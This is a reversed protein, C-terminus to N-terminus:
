HTGPLSKRANRSIRRFSLDWGRVKLRFSLWGTERNVAVRRLVADTGKLPPHHTTLTLAMTAYGAARVADLVREDFDGEYPCFHRCPVGLGDELARRSATLETEVSEAALATLRRGRVGQSGITWGAQSLERLMAWNMAEGGGPLVGPSSVQGTVVYVTAVLGRAALLPYAQAYLERRGGDFTVAVGAGPRAAAGALPIVPLGMDALLDLQAAFRGPPLTGSSPRAAITPYALITL